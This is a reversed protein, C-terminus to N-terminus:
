FNSLSQFKQDTFKLLLMQVLKENGVLVKKNNIVAEIGKGSIEKISNISSNDIEKNYYKQISKSIPHNSGSEASAVYYIFENEDINEDINRDDRLDKNM